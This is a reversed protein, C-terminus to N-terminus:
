APRSSRSRVRGSPSPCGPARPRRSGRPWRRPCRPWARTARSSPCREAPRARPPSWGSRRRSPARRSWRRPPRAPGRGARRPRAPGDVHDARGRRTRRDAYDPAPRPSSPPWSPCSAGTRPRPDGRAADLDGADLAGRSRRWGTGGRGSASSWCGRTRIRACCSRGRPWCCSSARPARDAQRRLRRAARARADVQALARRRRPRTARSRRATRRPRLARWAAGAARGPREFRERAASASAAAPVGRRRRGAPRAAHAAAARPRGHGGVPERRHAALGRARRARRGAGGARLPLFREPAAQGHVRARQRPGEGRVPVGTGALARALIVPGMVLHNALAVDPRVREAVERVAAVNRELYLTSSRTASSRSRGRRSARTATPSTSPCCAASTRGTVVRRGARGRRRSGRCRGPDPDQCLLDLEHGARM